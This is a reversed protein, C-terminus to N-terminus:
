AGLSLGYLAALEDLITKVEADPLARDLIALDAVDIRSYQSSADPGRGLRLDSQAVVNTTGISATRKHLYLRSSAGDFVAAVLRKGSAATWNDYVSNPTSGSTLMGGQTDSSALRIARYSTATMSAVARGGASGATQLDCAIIITSPGNIDPHNLDMFQNTGSFALAKRGGFAAHRLTPETGSGAALPSTWSGATPTFSAVPSGDAATLKDAQWRALLNAATDLASPPPGAEVHPSLWIMGPAPNVPATDSVLVRAYTANLGQESLRGTGTAAELEDLSEYAVALAQDYHTLAEANMPTEGPKAPQRSGDNKWGGPYFPEYPM